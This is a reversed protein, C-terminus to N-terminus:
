HAPPAATQMLVVLAASAFGVVMTFVSIFIHRRHYSVAALIGGILPLAFLVGIVFWVDFSRLLATTSRALIDGAHLTSAVITALWFIVSPMVFALGTWTLPGPRASNSTAAAM